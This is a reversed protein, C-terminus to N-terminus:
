RSFVQERLAVALYYAGCGAIVVSGRRLWVAHLGAECKLRGLTLLGFLPLVVIQHGIEVGLSFAVLAIWVGVPPLGAMADLLGGAFGLGHILGFGFAVALRVRSRSRDPWLINELAVFLISLAIGPEVIFSPLRFIDFVSLALTLTHACTFAAVVKFMEWFRRAALVLAAVFLLHDYGTLIHVVGHRLYDRFTRWRNAPPPSASAAVTGPWGTAVTVHRGGPLLRVDAAAAGPKTLRVVYSVNWATGAAYPWEELMDHFLTLEAPPPGALPYELEYRYFTNEAQDIAAPPTVGVVKGALSGTGASIVLHALVYGRHREVGAQVVGADVAGFPGFAISQAVCIERLSVNVAVDVRRPEVRVWMADQLNPHAQATFVGVGAVIFILLVVRM